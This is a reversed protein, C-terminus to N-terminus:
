YVKIFTMKLTNIWKHLYCFLIFLHSVYNICTYFIYFWIKGFFFFKVSSLLFYLPFTCSLDLKDIANQNKSARVVFIVKITIFFHDIINYIIKRIFSKSKTITIVTLLWSNFLFYLSFWLEYNYFCQILHLEHSNLWNITRHKIFYHLNM